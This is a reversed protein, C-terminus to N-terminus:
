LVNSNVIGHLCVNCEQPLTILIILCACRNCYHRRDLSVNKTRYHSTKRAATEPACKWCLYLGGYTVTLVHFIYHGFPRVYNYKERSRQELDDIERNIVEQSLIKRRQYNLIDENEGWIEQQFDAIVPVELQNQDRIWLIKVNTKDKLVYM